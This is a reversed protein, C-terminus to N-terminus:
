RSAKDRSGGRRACDTPHKRDTVRINANRETFSNPSKQEVSVTMCKEHSHAGIRIEGNVKQFNSGPTCPMKSLEKNNGCLVSSIPFNESSCSPKDPSPYSRTMLIISENPGREAISSLLVTQSRSVKRIYGRKQCM